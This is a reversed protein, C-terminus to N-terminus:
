VPLKFKKGKLVRHLFFTLLQFGLFGIVGWAAEEGDVDGGDM